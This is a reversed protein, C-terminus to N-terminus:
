YKLVPMFLTRVSFFSQPVNLDFSTKELVIVTKSSGDAMSLSIKKFVWRGDVKELGSSEMTKYLQGDKYFEVKTPLFHTKDITMILKSYQSDNTNPTIQVVYKSANDSLLSYKGDEKQSYLLSLDSYTFDSGAFKSNKSSGAIRQVRHYAPLYLYEKNKGLSLFSMGKINQPYTFRVFAYKQDSSKNYVYIVLDYQKEPANKQQIHMKMEVKQNRFNSNEDVVKDMIQQANLAFSTSFIGVTLVLVASLALFKKM